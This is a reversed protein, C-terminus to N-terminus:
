NTKVIIIVLYLGKYINLIGINLFLNILCSRHYGGENLFPFALLICRYM